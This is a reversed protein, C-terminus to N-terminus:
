TSYKYKGFYSQQYIALSCEATINKLAEKKGLATKYLILTTVQFYSHDLNNM